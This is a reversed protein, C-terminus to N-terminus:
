EEKYKKNLYDLLEEVSTLQRKKGTKAPYFWAKFKEVSDIPPCGFTAGFQTASSLFNRPLGDNSYGLLYDDTFFWVEDDEKVEFPAHQKGAVTQEEDTLVCKIPTGQALRYQASASGSQLKELTFKNM